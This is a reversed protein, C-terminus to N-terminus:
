SLQEFYLAFDRLRLHAAAAAASKAFLLSLLSLLLPPSTRLPAVDLGIALGAIGTREISSPVCPLSM